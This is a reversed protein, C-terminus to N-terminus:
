GTNRQEYNTELVGGASTRVLLARVRMGDFAEAAGSISRDISRDISIYPSLLLHLHLLLLQRSSALRPRLGRDAAAAAPDVVQGLADEPSAGDELGDM